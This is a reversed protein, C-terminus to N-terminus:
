RVDRQEGLFLDLAWGGAVRWPAQVGALLRGIEDPRWADWAAADPDFGMSEAEADSAM